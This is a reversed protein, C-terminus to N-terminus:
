ASAAASIRRTASDGDGPSIPSARAAHNPDILDARSRELRQRRVYDSFSENRLEFLRQVYRLSLRQQKSIDGICLASSSLKGDIAAAIRRFHAAQVRTMSGSKTKLDSLIASVVLEVLAGEAASLDAQEIDDIREAISQLVSRAASASATEALALPYDVRSRGVRTQIRSRPLSFLTAEFNSQWEIRWNLDLSLAVLGSNVLQRSEKDVYLRASGQDVVLLIIPGDRNVCAASITQPGGAIRALCAGSSSPVVAITGSSTDSREVIGCLGLSNLKQQWIDPRMASPISDIEIRITM